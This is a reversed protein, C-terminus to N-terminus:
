RRKGGCFLGVEAGRAIRRQVDAPTGPNYFRLTLVDFQSVGALVGSVIEAGVPYSLEKSIPHSYSTPILQREPTGDVARAYGLHQAKGFGFSRPRV